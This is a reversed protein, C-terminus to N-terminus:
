LGGSYSFSSVVLVFVNAWGWIFPIWTTMYWGAARYIAGVMAGTVSGAVLAEVAAIASYIIPVTWLYKWNTKKKGIQVILAIGIAAWHFCAYMVFTWILTFRWMDGLHYLVYRDELPPWFLSPWRPTHYDAPPFQEDMSPGPISSENLRKTFFKLVPLDRVTPGGHTPPTCDASAHRYHHHVPITEQAPRTATTTCYTLDSSGPRQASTWCPREGLNWM